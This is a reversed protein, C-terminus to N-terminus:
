HPPSPHASTSAGASGTATGTATGTVPTKVVPPPITYPAQGTSICITVTSGPAAVAPTYSAITYAAVKSGCHIPYVAVNFGKNRLTTTAVAQSQGIISTPVTVGNPVSTPSRTSWKNGALTASLASYWWNAAISADATTQAVADTVGPIGTIGVEPTGVNIIAMTAALNPTMGVFWFGSNQNATNTDTGTKGAILSGGKQYWSKFISTTTGGPQTDGGLLQVATRAVQPTMQVTCPSRKVSIARGQEDTISKVPAPTCFVGDNEAAAYAGTLELPSTPFYGLTVSPLPTSKIQDAYTKYRTQGAPMQNLGNMGLGTATSVITSLDCGFLGDELGYFYTNSSKAIATALTETPTYAISQDGNHVAATQGCQTAIYGKEKATDVNIAIPLSTPTGAELAALMTFYKYTSAGQGGYDTFISSALENQTADDGYPKSAVMALVDGTKPDTVPMLATSVSTAPFASIAKQASDQIAPNLTTVISYGDTSLNKLNEGKSNELWNQVYACFFGVNAVTAPANTCGEQVKPASTTALSIPTAEDKTATAQDLDGSTVMNQIVENRRDKAAQPHVFPDYDTPARLLGVLLAAQPINLTSVTDKGPVTGFYTEAASEISYSSEGFFAINLYNDLIQDKSERKELDIACKADKIKRGVTQSIAAAQAAPDDIAQYYRVQKVYQMTLTSGGQTDGGSSNSFASRILGRMDVGHHSYFRRDETDILAQQLFKPVVSLDVPKRNQDFLTAIVTTGDNAYFTTGQPPPTEQLDCAANLFQDAESKAALGAGGIYPLLAGAALVAAVIMTGFLKLITLTPNPRSAPRTM